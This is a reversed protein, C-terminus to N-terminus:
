GMQWEADKGVEKVKNINVKKKKINKVVQENVKTEIM